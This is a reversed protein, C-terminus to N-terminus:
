ERRRQPAAHERVRTRLVTAPGDRAGRPSKNYTTLLPPQRHPTPATSGSLSDNIFDVVKQSLVEDSCSDSEWLIEKRLTWNHQLRKPLLAFDANLRADDEIDFNLPHGNVGKGIYIKNTPFTIKYIQKKM